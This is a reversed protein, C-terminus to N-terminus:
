HHEFQFYGPGAHFGSIEGRCSVTVCVSFSLSWRSGSCACAHLWSAFFHTHGVQSLAAPAEGAGEGARFPINFSSSWFWRTVKLFSAVIQPRHCLLLPSGPDRIAKHFWCLLELCDVDPIGKHSLIFGSIILGSSCSLIQENYRVGNRFAVPEPYVLICLFM